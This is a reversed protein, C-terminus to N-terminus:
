LYRIKGNIGDLNLLSLTFDLSLLCLRILPNESTVNFYTPIGLM